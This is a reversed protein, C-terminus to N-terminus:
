RCSPPRRPRIAAGAKAADIASAAIQQRMVPMARDKEVSAASGTVAGSIMVKRPM